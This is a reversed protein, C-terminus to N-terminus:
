EDSVVWCPAGVSATFQVASRTTLNRLICNVFRSRSGTFFPGATLELLKLM